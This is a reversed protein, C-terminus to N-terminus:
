LRGVSPGSPGTADRRRYGYHAGAFLGLRNARSNQRSARALHSLILALREQALENAIPQPHAANSVPLSNPRGNALSTRSLRSNKRRRRNARILIFWCAMPQAIGMRWSRAFTSRRREVSRVIVPPTFM